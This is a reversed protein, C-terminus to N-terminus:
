LSDSLDCSLLQHQLNLILKDYSDCSENFRVCTMQCTVHYCDVRTPETDVPRDYRENLRSCSVV